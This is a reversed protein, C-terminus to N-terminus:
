PIVRADHYSMPLIKQQQLQIMGQLFVIMVSEAVHPHPNQWAARM